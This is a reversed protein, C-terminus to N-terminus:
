PFGSSEPTKEIVRACKQGRKKRIQPSIRPFVTPGFYSSITLTLNDPSETERQLPSTKEPARRFAVVKTSPLSQASKAHACALRARASTPRPARGRVIPFRFRHGCPLSFLSQAAQLEQGCPLRFRMHASQWGQGCPFTFYLQASQLGQGCPFLFSLQTSQLGHGCPFSFLLHASQLGQGCPLSFRLQAAQLAARM